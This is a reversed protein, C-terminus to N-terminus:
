SNSITILRELTAGARGERVSASALDFGEELTAARDAVILALAANACVVDFVPGPTGKLFRRVVDV